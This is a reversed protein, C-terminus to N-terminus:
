PDPVNLINHNLADLLRVKCVSKNKSAALGYHTLQAEWWHGVKDQIPQAAAAAAKSQKSNPRLLDNLQAISARAHRNGSGVEVYLNSGNYYFGDKGVPSALSM